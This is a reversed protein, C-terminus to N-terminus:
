IFEKAWEMLVADCGDNYYKKREGLIQFGLSKYFSIAIKNDKRVELFIKHFKNKLETILETGIKLNRRSPIVGIRYIEAEDLYSTFFIYGIIKKKDEELYCVVTKEKELHSSISNKSWAFDGFCKKELEFLINIDLELKPYYEIKKLFDNM